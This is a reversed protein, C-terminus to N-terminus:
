DSEGIRSAVFTGIRKKYAYAKELGPTAKKEGWISSRLQSLQYCCRSQVQFIRNKMAIYQFSFKLNFRINQMDSKLEFSIPPFPSHPNHRCKHWEQRDTQSNRAYSKNKWKKKKKISTRYRVTDVWISGFAKLKRKEITDRYRLKKSFSPCCPVYFTLINPFVVFVLM